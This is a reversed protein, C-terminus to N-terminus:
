YSSAREMGLPGDRDQGCGPLVGCYGSVVGESIGDAGKVFMLADIQNGVLVIYFAGRCNGALPLLMLSYEMEHM